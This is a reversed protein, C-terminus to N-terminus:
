LGFADKLLLGLIVLGILWNFRLREELRVQRIEIRRVVEWLKEHSDIREGPTSPNGIPKITFPNSM